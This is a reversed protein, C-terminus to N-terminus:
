REELCLALWKRSPAACDARPWAADRVLLVGVRPLASVNNGEQGHAIGHLALHRQLFAEPAHLMPFREPVGAAGRLPRPPALFLAEFTPGRTMWASFRPWDAVVLYDPVSSALREPAHAPPGM